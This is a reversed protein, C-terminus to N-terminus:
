YKKDTDVEDTGNFSKTDDCLSTGQSVQAKEVILWTRTWYNVSRESTLAKAINVTKASGRGFVHTITEAFTSKGAGGQGGFLCTAIHPEPGKAHQYRRALVDLPYNTKDDCNLVDKLHEFFRQANGKPNATIDPRRWLNPRYLGHSLVIAPQEPLYIPEKWLPRFYGYRVIAKARELDKQGASMMQKVVEILNM